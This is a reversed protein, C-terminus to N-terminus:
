WEHQLGNALSRSECRSSWSKTRVFTPRSIELSWICVGLPSIGFHLASQLVFRLLRMCLWKGVFGTHLM